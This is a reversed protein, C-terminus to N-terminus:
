DSAWSYLDTFYLIGINLLFLFSLVSISYYTNPYIKRYEYVFIGLLALLAPFALLYIKDNYPVSNIPLIFLCFVIVAFLVSSVTKLKKSINLLAILLAFFLAFTYLLILLLLNALITHLLQFMPTMAVDTMEITPGYLYHHYVKTVALLLLTVVYAMASVVIFLKMILLQQLFHM